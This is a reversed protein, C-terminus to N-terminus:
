RHNKCSRRPCGPFFGVQRAPGPSKPHPVALTFAKSLLSVAVLFRKKGDELELVFEMARVIGALRQEYPGQIVSRYDFGHLM